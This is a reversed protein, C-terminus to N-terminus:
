YYDNGALYDYIESGSMQTYDLIDYEQAYKDMDNVAINVVKPQSVQAVTQVPKAPQAAAQSTRQAPRSAVRATLPASSASVTSVLTSPTYAAGEDSSRHPAAPADASRRRHSSVDYASNAYVKQEPESAQALMTNTAPEDDSEIKIVAPKQSALQDKGEDSSQQSLFFGVGCLCAAAAVAWKVWPRKTKHPMLGVVKTKPKMVPKEAESADASVEPIQAMVRSTLSEFYGEPVKFPPKKDLQEISFHKNM